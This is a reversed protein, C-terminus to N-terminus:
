KSAEPLRTKIFEYEKAADEDDPYSKLYAKVSKYAKAFDGLKEYVVIENHKLQQNFSSDNYELGTQIDILAEDYQNLKIECMGLKAYVAASIENKQDKILRKYNHVASKYDEQKQYIDGLYYYAATYGNKAATTFETVAQDYDEKYYYIKALNYKDKETNAKISEAEDLVAAAGNDDSEILLFYKGFYYDFNNHDLSIAKDYDALSKKINGMKRYVLARNNYTAADTPNKKIIETFTKLSDKYLGARQQASGKYYLIDSNLNDLEEIALALNFQKIAKKYQHAKYYAIGKGRYATKNNRKTILNDKKLIAKNFSTIADEYKSLMILTMGYNIYYEARDTNLEIAKSINKEAEKYDGNKFNKMGTNYYRSASKGSCGSLLTIICFVLVATYSLRKMWTNKM